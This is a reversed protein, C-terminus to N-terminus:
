KKKKKNNTASFWLRQTDRLCDSVHKAADTSQFVSCLQRIEVLVYISPIVNLLRTVSVAVKQKQFDSQSCLNNKKINNIMRQPKQESRQATQGDM